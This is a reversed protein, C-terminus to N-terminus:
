DEVNHMVKALHPYSWIDIVCFQGSHATKSRSAKKTSDGKLSLSCYKHCDVRPIEFKSPLALLLYLHRFFQRFNDVSFNDVSHVVKIGM